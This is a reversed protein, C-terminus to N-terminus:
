HAKQMEQSTKEACEELARDVSKEFERGCYLCTEVAEVKSHPLAAIAKCRRSLHAKGATRTRWITRPAIGEQLM